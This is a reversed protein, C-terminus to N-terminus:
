PTNPRVNAQVRRENNNRWCVYRHTEETNEKEGTPVASGKDLSNESTRILWMSFGPVRSVGGELMMCTFLLGTCAPRTIVVVVLLRYNTTMMDIPVLSHLSYINHKNVSYIVISFYFPQM